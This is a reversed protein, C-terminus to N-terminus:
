PVERLNWLKSRRALIDNLEGTMKGTQRNVREYFTAGVPADGKKVFDPAEMKDAIFKFAPSQEALRRVPTIAKGGTWDMVGRGVRLAKDGWTLPNNLPPSGPARGMAHDMFLGFPENAIESPMRLSQGKPTAEAIGAAVPKKVAGEPVEYVVSPLKVDDVAKAGLEEKLALEAKKAAVEPAVELAAENAKVQKKGKVAHVGKAGGKFVGLPAFVQVAANVGAGAVPSDTLDVTKGGLYDGFEALKEFPYSIAELVARGEKTRPEYTLASSVKEITKSAESADQEMLATGAGAIGGVPAGIAGSGFSMIGEGVGVLWDGVSSEEEEIPTFGTSAEDKIPTFGTASEIPTFGTSAEQEIPTFGTDPEDIPTFGMSAPEAELPIFPM